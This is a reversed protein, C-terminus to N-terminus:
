EGILKPVLEELKKIEKKKHVIADFQDYYELVDTHGEFYGHAADKTTHVTYLISPIDKFENRSKMLKLTLLGSFSKPRFLNQIVLDVKHEHMIFFAELSNRAEIFNYKKDFGWHQFFMIIEGTVEPVEDILLITKM